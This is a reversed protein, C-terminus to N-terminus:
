RFAVFICCVKICSISRSIEVTDSKIDNGSPEPLKVLTFKSNDSLNSRPSVNKSLIDSGRGSGASSSSMDSPISVHTTKKMHIRGANPASSSESSENHHEATTNRATNADKMREKNRFIKSYYGALSARYKNESSVSSSCDDTSSLVNIYKSQTGTSASDSTPTRAYPPMSPKVSFRTDVSGYDVKLELPDVLTAKEDSVFDFFKLKYTPPLTECAGVAGGSNRRKKRPTGITSGAQKGYYKNHQLASGGLELEVGFHHSSSKRLNSPSSVLNPSSERSSLVSAMKQMSRHFLTSDSGSNSHALPAMSRADRDRSVADGYNNSSGSLSSAGFKDAVRHLLSSVGGGGGTGGDSASKSGPLGVLPESLSKRHLFKRRNSRDAPIPQPISSIFVDGSGSESGSRRARSGNAPSIKLVMPERVDVIRKSFRRGSLPRPPPWSGSSSEAGPIPYTLTTIPVNGGGTVLGNLRDRIQLMCDVFQDRHSVGGEDMGLPKVIGIAMGFEGSADRTIISGGATSAFHENARGIGIGGSSDRSFQCKGGEPTEHANRTVEIIKEYCVVLIQIDMKLDKLHEM